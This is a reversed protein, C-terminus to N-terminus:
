SDGAAQTARAPHSRARGLGHRTVGPGDQEVREDRAFADLRSGPRHRELSEKGVTPRPCRHFSLELDHALRQSPEPPLKGADRSPNGLKALDHLEPVQERVAVVGDVMAHDPAERPMFEGAGRPAAGSRRRSRNLANAVRCVHPGISTGGDVLMSPSSAAIARSHGTRRSSPM